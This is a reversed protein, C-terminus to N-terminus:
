PLSSIKDWDFEGLLTHLCVNQMEDMTAISIGHANDGGGGSGDATTTTTTTTSADNVIGAL